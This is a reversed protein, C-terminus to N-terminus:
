EEAAVADQYVNYESMLDEVNTLAEAMFQPGGKGKSSFGGIGKYVVGKPPTKPRAPPPAQALPVQINMLVNFRTGMARVGIVSSTAKGRAAAESCFEMNALEEEGVPLFTTQFRISVKKDLDVHSLDSGVPLGAYGGYAAMNALVDRLTVPRLDDVGM